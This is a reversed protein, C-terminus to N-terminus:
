GRAKEFKEEVMNWNIIQWIAKLYEPRANKYQLYYAHEWVDIGMLPILGQLSLPDQNLTTAIELRFAGKNWGLWGWGSGQIAGTKQSFGEQFSSFSSFDKELQKLLSGEPSPKAKNKPCLIQWFLSHNFHGGGNFKLAPQLAIMSSLDGEKEAKQYKELAANYNNVYAQHHKKHHLEMIEKSIVPELDQYDYLLKPLTQEKM